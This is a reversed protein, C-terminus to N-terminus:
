YRPPRYIGRPRLQQKNAENRIQEGTKGRGYQRGEEYGRDLDARVQYDDIFFRDNPNCANVASQHDYFEVFCFGCPTKKNKGNVGMIVRKIPGCDAFTSYISEETTNTNLNGVYITTSNDILKFYQEQDLNSRKDFYRPKNIDKESLAILSSM